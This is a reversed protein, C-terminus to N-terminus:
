SKELMKLEEKNYYNVGYKQKWRIFHEIAAHRKQHRRMNKWLIVDGDDKNHKPCRDPSWSGGGTWWYEYTFCISCFEANKNFLDDLKPKGEELRQERAEDSNKRPRALFYEIAWALVCPIGICLVVFFLPGMINLDRM